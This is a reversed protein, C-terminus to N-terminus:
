FVAALAVIVIIGYVIAVTGVAQALPKASSERTTVQSLSVSKITAIEARAVSIGKGQITKGDVATVRFELRRGDRTTIAADDGVAVDEVATYIKRTETRTTTTCGSLVLAAMVAGILVRM